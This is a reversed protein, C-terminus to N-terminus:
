TTQQKRENEFVTLLKDIYDSMIMKAKLVALLQAMPKGEDVFTRMYGEPEALTLARELPVLGLPVNEEAKHALAQLVLIQIVSGMREGEDAAKLLRELLARATQITRDDRDESYRDILVRAFIFHEYERLYSLDDDVSLDHDSMWTMAKNLQGQKIWIRAKLAAIPRLEPVVNRYYLREAKSLLDIAGDFNRQDEEVQAQALTFRYQWLQFPSFENAVESRQLYQRAIVPNGQERFLKSMGLYVYATGPPVPGQKPIHELSKEYLSLADLLRGQAVRIDALLFTGGITSDIDGTKKMGEMSGAFTRYATELDGIAFYAIGLIGAAGVRGNHDDEPLLDINELTYKITGPIDGFTGALYARASAITAPLLQFQEKDVIVMKNTLEHNEGIDGTTELLKEVQQLRAEGAEMEGIDFLAWVYNVNLVPRVRVLKDPLAKVWGLWPASQIYRDTEPWAFEILGAAREMDEAALAHCIADKSLNNQEYWESARLHLTAEVNPEVDMLRAHLVEAFLHHYRYWQRKDDLSIVFLNAKELAALMKNGDKHGTVANCMPGSMRDLISTQLLFDQVHEPQSQLVEEVLYDVIHKDDGAFSQIFGSVDEKGQMSLAAMQLGAVWGETSTELKTINDASLSLGMVQNLFEAAESPTFRLDKIRLETLQNRARFRALPLHPDERSTIVVHMQPPMHELLFTLLDDVPKADIVHYDDLVLNFNDPITAIENVLTTLM